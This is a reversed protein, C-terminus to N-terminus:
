PLFYKYRLIEAGFFYKCNHDSVQVVQRKRNSGCLDSGNYQPLMYGVVAFTEKVIELVKWVMDKKARWDMM